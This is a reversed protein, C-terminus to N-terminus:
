VPVRVDDGEEVYEFSLVVFIDVQYEVEHLSIEMSDDPGVDHFVNMFFVYEVLLVERM